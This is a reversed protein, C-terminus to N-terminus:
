DGNPRLALKTVRLRARRAGRFTDLEATAVVDVLLSSQWADLHHRSVLLWIRHEM